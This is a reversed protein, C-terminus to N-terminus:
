GKRARAANAVRDASKGLANQGAASIDKQARMVTIQKEAGDKEKVTVASEKGISITYMGDDKAEPVAGEFQYLSDGVQACVKGDRQMLQGEAIRIYARDEDAKASAMGKANDASASRIDKEAEASSFVMGRGKALDEESQPTVNNHYKEYAKLKEESDFARCPTDELIGAKDLMDPLIKANWDAKTMGKDSFEYMEGSETKFSYTSYVIDKEVAFRRTVEVGMEPVYFRIDSDPKLLASRIPQMCEKAAISPGIEVGKAYEAMAKEPDKEFETGKSTALYDQLSMAGGKESRAKAGDRIEMAEDRAQNLNEIEVRFANRDKLEIKPDLMADKRAQIMGDYKEIITQTGAVKEKIYESLIKGFAAADQPPVCIYTKGSGNVDPMKAWRLGAKKAEGLMKNIREENLDAEFIQPPGDKCLKWIGKVSGREGSRERIGEKIGEKAKGLDEWVPKLVVANLAQLLWAAAQVSGKVLLKIGEFELQCVQSIEDAM